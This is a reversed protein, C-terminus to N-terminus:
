QCIQFGGCIMEVREKKLPFPPTIIEWYKQFADFLHIIQHQECLMNTSKLCIYELTYAKAKLIKM